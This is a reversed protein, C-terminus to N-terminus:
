KFAGGEGAAMFFKGLGIAAWGLLIALSIIECNLCLLVLSTVALVSKDM